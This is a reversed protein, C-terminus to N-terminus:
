NTNINSDNSLGYAKLKKLMKVQRSDLKDPMVMKLTIFHDGGTIGSGKSVVVDGPRSCKPVLVKNKGHITQIEMDIGLLMDLYDLDCDSFIDKGERRYLPHESVNIRLYLNGRASRVFDINGANMVRLIAGPNVGAQFNVKIKKSKETYGRTKCEHNDCDLIIKRGSCKKCATRLIAQGMQQQLFGYGNCADCKINKFKNHQQFYDVCTDCPTHVFYDIERTVGFCAEEFTLDVTVINDLDVVAYSSQSNGFAYSFFQSAFPNDSFPNDSFPNNQFIDDSAQGAYTNAPRPGPTKGTLMDYALSIEKFKEIAEPSKNVDPHYKKASMRYAKKIDEGTAQESIGLIKYPNM